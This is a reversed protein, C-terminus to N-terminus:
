CRVTRTGHRGLTETTSSPRSSIKREQSSKTFPSVESETQVKQSDVRVGVRKLIKMELQVRVPTYWFSWLTRPDILM